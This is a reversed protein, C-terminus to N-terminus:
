MAAFRFAHIEPLLRSVFDINEAHACVCARAREIACVCFSICSNTKYACMKEHSWTNAIFKENRFPLCLFLSLSFSFSVFLFFSRFLFRILEDEICIFRSNEAYAFHIVLLRGGSGGSWRGDTVCVSVCVSVFFIQFHIWLVHPFIKSAFYKIANPPNKIVNVPVCMCVYIRQSSM